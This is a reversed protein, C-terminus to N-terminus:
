QIRYVLCSHGFDTGGTHSLISMPRLQNRHKFFILQYKKPEFHLSAYSISPTYGAVQRNM